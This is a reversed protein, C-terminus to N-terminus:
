YGYYYNPVYYRRYPPEVYRYRAYPRYHHHRWYYAPPPVYRYPRYYRRYYYPRDYRPGTSMYFGSRGDGVGFSFNVDDRAQAPAASLAGLVVVAAFLGGGVWRSIKSNFNITM